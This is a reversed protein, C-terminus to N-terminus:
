RKAKGIVRRADDCCIRRFTGKEFGRDFTFLMLELSEVLRANTAELEKIRKASEARGLEIGSMIAENRARVVEAIENFLKSM